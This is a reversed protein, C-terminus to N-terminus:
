LHTTYYSHLLLKLEQLTPYTHRQRPPDIFAAIIITLNAFGQFLRRTLIRDPYAVLVAHL